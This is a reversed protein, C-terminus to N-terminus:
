FEGGMLEGGGAPKEKQTLKELLKMVDEISKNRVLDPQHLAEKIERFIQFLQIKFIRNEDRSFELSRLHKLNLYEVLDTEKGDFDCLMLWSMGEIGRDRDVVLIKPYDKWYAGTVSDRQADTEKLGKARALPETPKILCKWKNKETPHQIHQLMKAWFGDGYFVWEPPLIPM